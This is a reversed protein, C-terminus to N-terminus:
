HTVEQSCFRSCERLVESISMEWFGKNNENNETLIAGVSVKKPFASGNVREHENNKGKCFTCKFEACPCLFFNDTVGFVFEKHTFVEM